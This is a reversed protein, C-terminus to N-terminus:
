RLPRWSARNPDIAPNWKSTDERPNEPLYKMVSVPKYTKRTIGKECKPIMISNASLVSNM